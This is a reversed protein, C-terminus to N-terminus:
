IWKTSKSIQKQSTNLYQLKWQKSLNSRQKQDFNPKLVEFDHEPLEFNPKQVEFDHKPVEFNSKVVKFDQLKWQKLMNKPLNPDGSNQM